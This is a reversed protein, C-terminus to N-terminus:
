SDLTQQGDVSRGSQGFDENIRDDEEYFFELLCGM